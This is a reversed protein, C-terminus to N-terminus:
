WPHQLICLLRSPLYKRHQGTVAKLGESRGAKGRSDQLSQGEEGDRFTSSTRAIQMILLAIAPGPTSERDDEAWNQPCVKGFIHLCSLRSRIGGSILNCPSVSLSLITDM